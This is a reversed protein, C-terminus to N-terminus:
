IADDTVTAVFQEYAERWGQFEAATGLFSNHWITIMKGHVAQITQCYQM